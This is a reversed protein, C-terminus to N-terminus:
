TEKIKKLDTDHSLAEASDGDYDSRLRPGCKPCCVPQADFRRSTPNYYEGGCEPCMAFAKMTTRERDYPMSELITLRPGCDTCNIFPHQYRRNSEDFLERKCKDCIAIDAPIM